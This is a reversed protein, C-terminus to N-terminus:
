ARVITFEEVCHKGGLEVDLYEYTVGGNADLKISIIHDPNLSREIAFDSIFNSIVNSSSPM